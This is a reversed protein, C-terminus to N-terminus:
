NKDSNFIENVRETFGKTNDDPNDIGRSKFEEKAKALANNWKKARGSEEAVLANIYADKKDYRVWSGRCYPHFVGTTFSHGSGNWEKGEWIVFDADPDKSIESKLPKDSWLAIKGNMERCYKCTNDDIVEVRQFYVKEGEKANQVEERIFSNNFANQIETDALRQYDRNDGVMRDFLEQSVQGKSKRAKVGDILIQQIDGRMKDTVNQVKVAASQQYMQIRAMEARNLEEGFVNKMNKVSDSIWDFSKEHYELKELQLKKVAELTNYKLMRDLIKGLSHADLVIKEASSKNRNLFKELNEVFKNWDKLKIPEGSEPYYLIKGKHTLNESKSMITKEPLGFYDTIFKYTKSVLESFFKCWKDTLEEQAKYFFIEGKAAKLPINFTMAMTRLAKEVREPTRDKLNITVDTLRETNDAKVNEFSEFNLCKRLQEYKEFRNGVTINKINIQVSKNVDNNIPIINKNHPQYTYGWRLSTEKKVAAKRVNILSQYTSGLGLFHIESTAAKGKFFCPELFDTSKKIESSNVGIVSIYVTNGYTGDSYKLKSVTVQVYDKVDGKPAEGTISQYVNAIITKGNNKDKQPNRLTEYRSHTWVGNNEFLEKACPLYKVHRLVNSLHRSKKGGVSNTGQESIHKFSIDEFVVKKNRLEHCISKDDPTTNQWDKLWTNQIYNIAQKKVQKVQDKEPLNKNIKFNLTKSKCQTIRSFNNRNDYYYYWIGNKFEKRSYKHSKILEEFIDQESM